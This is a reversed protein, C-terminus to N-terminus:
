SFKTFFYTCHLKGSREEVVAPSTSSVFPNYVKRPFECKLNVSKRVQRYLQHFESFRRSMRYTLDATSVEV